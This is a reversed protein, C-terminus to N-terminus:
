KIHFIVADRCFSRYKSYEYPEDARRFEWVNRYMEAYSRETEAAAGQAEAAARKAAADSRWRPVQAVLAVAVVVLIMVAVVLGTARWSTAQAAKRALRLQQIQEPTVRSVGTASPTPLTPPKQFPSENM